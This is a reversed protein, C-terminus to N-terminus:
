TKLPTVRIGRIIVGSLAGGRYLAVEKMHHDDEMKDDYLCLIPGWGLSMSAAKFWDV